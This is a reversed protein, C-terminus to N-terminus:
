EELFQLISNGSDLCKQMEKSGYEAYESILGGLSLGENICEKEVLIKFEEPRFGRVGIDKKPQNIKERLGKSYGLSFAFRFASGITEFPRDLTSNEDNRSVLSSIFTHLELSLEAIGAKPEETM